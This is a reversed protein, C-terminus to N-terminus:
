EILERSWPEGDLYVVSTDLTTDLHWWTLSTGDDNWLALAPKDDVDQVTWTGTTEERQETPALSMGGSSISTSSYDELYFSGDEHLFLARRREWYSSGDSYDGEYGNDERRHVRGRLIRTFFECRDDDAAAV